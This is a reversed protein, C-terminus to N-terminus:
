SFVLRFEDHPIALIQPMILVYEFNKWHSFNSKSIDLQMNVKFIFKQYHITLIGIKKSKHRKKYLIILWSTFIYRIDGRYCYKHFVFDKLNQGLNTSRFFHTDHHFFNFGIAYDITQWNPTNIIQANISYRSKQNYFAQWYYYLKKFISITTLDVM